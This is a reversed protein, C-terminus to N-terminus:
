KSCSELRASTPSRDGACIASNFVCRAPQLSHLPEWASNRAIAFSKKVTSSRLLNRVKGLSFHLPLVLSGGGAPQAPLLCSQRAVAGIRLQVTQPWVVRRHISHRVAFLDPSRGSVEAALLTM